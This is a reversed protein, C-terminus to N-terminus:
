TQVRSLTRRSQHHALVAVNLKVSLRPTISSPRSKIQLAITYFFLWNADCEKFLRTNGDNRLEWHEGFYLSSIQGVHIVEQKVVVASVNATSYDFYDDGGDVIDAATGRMNDAVKRKRALMQEYTKVFEPADRDNADEIKNLDIDEFTFGGKSHAYLLCHEYEPDVQLIIPSGVQDSTVVPQGPLTVLLIEKKPINLEAITEMGSFPEVRENSFVDSIQGALVKRDRFNFSTPDICRWVTLDAPLIDARSPGLRKEKVKEKLDEITSDGTSDVSFANGIAQFNHDILLLWIKM